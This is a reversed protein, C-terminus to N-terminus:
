NTSEPEEIIIIPTIRNEDNNQQKIRSASLISMMIHTRNQTGAGWDDLPVELGKDKLNIGLPISNRFLGDFVTLEVEYKDELKGLLGSLEGRHEQAFKKVKKRIREQEKKLEEKEDKSLIMEHFSSAELPHFMRSSGGTSNHLFIINSSSIRQFIEGTEYKKLENGDVLIKIEKENKQKILVIVKVKFNDALNEIEAIKKIFSHLGPDAAKTATLDYDFKISSETKIWQTKSGTYSLNEDENFFPFDREQGIFLGRIAKIISTKGANNKGSISSFYGDFNITVDELTRFNEIKIKEIKM